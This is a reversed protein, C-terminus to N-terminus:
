RARTVLRTALRSHRLLNELVRDRGIARVLERMVCYSSSRCWSGSSSRGFHAWVLERWLHENAATFGLRWWLPILHELYHVLLSAGVYLVTKWVVNYILPVKPFGISRPSCTPSSCWRRSSAAGRHDRGGRILSAPRVGEGDVSSRLRRYPVLDFLFDDTSPSRLVRSQGEGLSQERLPGRLEPSGARRLNSTRPNSGIVVTPKPAYTPLLSAFLTTCAALIALVMLLTTFGAAKVTPGLLYVALSSVGFASPWGSAPWRALAHRDDVYQVIM